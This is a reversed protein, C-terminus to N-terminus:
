LGVDWEGAHLEHLVHRDAIRRDKPVERKSECGPTAAQPGHIRENLETGPEILVVELRNTKSKTSTSPRFAEPRNNLADNCGAPIRSQFPGVIKPHVGTLSQRVLGYFHKEFKAEIGIHDVRMPLLWYIYHEARVRKVRVMAWADISEDTVTGM